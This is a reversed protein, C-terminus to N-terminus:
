GRGFLIDLTEPLYRLPPQDPPVAKQGVQRQHFALVSEIVDEATATVYIQITSLHAHGLVWRVDGIMQAVRDHEREFV